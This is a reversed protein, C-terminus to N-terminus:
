QLMISLMLHKEIRQGLVAAAVFDSANRIIEFLISWNTMWPLILLIKNKDLGKKCEEHFEFVVDKQLLKCLLLVKKKYFDKIFIRYFGAYGIFSHVEQESTPYSLSQIVNVKTTDVEIGRSSVVHGLIIGQEVM